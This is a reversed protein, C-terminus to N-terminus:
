NISIVYNFILLYPRVSILFRDLASLVTEQLRVEVPSPSHSLEPFPAVAMQSVADENRHFPCVPLTLVRFHNLEQSM